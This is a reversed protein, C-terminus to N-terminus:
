VATVTLVGGNGMTVKYLTQDPSAMVIGQGTTQLIIDSAVNVYGQVLLGNEPPQISSFASGITMGSNFTSLENFTQSTTFINSVDTYAYENDGLILDSLSGVSFNRTYHKVNSTLLSPTQTGLLLDQTKPIAVPYTSTISM